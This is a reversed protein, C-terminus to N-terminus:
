IASQAGPRLPLKAAARWGSLQGLHYGLHGTMIWQTFEGMTAFRQSAAPFPNPGALLEAGFGPAADALDTYISEFASVLERMAPYDARRTSPQTGPGFRPGWDKPTMPPRGSKRRAFDGTICLHGLIWGATKDGPSPALTLHEDTLDSLSPKAYKVLYSCIISANKM